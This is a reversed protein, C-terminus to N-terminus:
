STYSELYSYIEEMESFWMGQRLKEQESEPFDIIPIHTYLCIEAPNSGFVLLFGDESVLFFKKNEQVVPQINKQNMVIRDEPATETEPLPELSETALTTEEKATDPYLFFGAALVALIVGLLLLFCIHYKKM